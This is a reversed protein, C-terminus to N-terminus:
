EDVFDTEEAENFDCMFYYTFSQQFYLFGDKFYGEGEHRYFPATKLTIKGYVKGTNLAPKESLILNEIEANVFIDSTAEEKEQHKFM